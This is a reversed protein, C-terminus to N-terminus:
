NPKFKLVATILLASNSIPLTIVYALKFGSVISLSIIMSANTRIGISLGRLSPSRASNVILVNMSSVSTTSNLLVIEPRITLSVSKM